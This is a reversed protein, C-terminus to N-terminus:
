ALDSDVEAALEGPGRLQAGRLAELRAELPHRRRGPAEAVLGPELPRVVVAGGERWGRARQPREHACAGLGHLDVAPHPGAQRAARELPYLDTLDPALRAVAEVVVGRALDHELETLTSNRFVARQYLSSLMSAAVVNPPRSSTVLGNTMVGRSVLVPSTTQAVPWRSSRGPNTTSTPVPGPAIASATASAAGCAATQAVSTLEAATSSALSFACRAPGWPGPARPGPFS